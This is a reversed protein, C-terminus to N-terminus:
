STGCGGANSCSAGVIAAGGGTNAGGTNAGGAGIGCGIIAAPESACTAGGAGTTADGVADRQAIKSCSPRPAGFSSGFCHVFCTTLAYRRIPKAIRVIM